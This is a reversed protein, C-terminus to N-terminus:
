AGGSSVPTNEEVFCRIRHDYYDVAGSVHWRVLLVVLQGYEQLRSSDRERAM